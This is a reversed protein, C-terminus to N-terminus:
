FLFQDSGFADSGGLGTTGLLEDVLEPRENFPAPSAAGGRVAAAQEEPTERRLGLRIELRTPLRGIEPMGAQFETSASYADAINNFWEALAEASGSQGSLFEPTLRAPDPIMDELVELAGADLAGLNMAEKADLQLQRVLGSMRAIEPGGWPESGHEAIFRRVQGIRQGMGQLVVGRNRMQRWDKSGVAEPRIPVQGLTPDNYFLTPTEAARGLQARRDQAAQAAMVREMAAQDGMQALEVDRAHNAAATQQNQLMQLGGPYGRLALEMGLQEMDVGQQEPMPGVFENSPRAAEVGLGGRAAEIAAGFDQARRDQQQNTFYSDIGQRGAYGAALLPIAAAAILPLVM